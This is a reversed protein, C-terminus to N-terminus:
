NKILPIRIRDQEVHLTIYYVGASWLNIPIQTQSGAYTDAWILKGETSHITVFLEKFAPNDIFFEHQAPNPYVKIQHLHLLAVSSVDPLELQKQTLSSCGMGNDAELSVTVTQNMSNYTHTAVKQTDTTGDGLNWHYNLASLDDPTFTYTKYNREETFTSLPVPTILWEITDTTTKCPGVFIRAFAPNQLQSADLEFGNSQSKHTALGGMFLLASDYPNSLPFHFVSDSCLMVPSVRPHTDIYPETVTYSINRSIVPCELASSDIIQLTLMGSTQPIFSLTTTNSFPLGDFSVGAQANELGLVSINLTDGLCLDSNSQITFPLNSCPATIIEFGTDVANCPSNHLTRLTIFYPTNPQLDSILTRTQMFPASFSNGTDTSVQYGLAEPVASWFLDISNQTVRTTDANSIGQKVVSTLFLTQSPESPCLGSNQATATVTLSRDEDVVLFPTSTGQTVGNVNWIYTSASTNSIILTDQIRGCFSDQNSANSLIPTSPVPTVILNFTASTTECGTITDKTFVRYQNQTNAWFERGEISGPEWRYTAHSVQTAQLLISDGECITRGSGNVISSTPASQVEILLTDPKSVGKANTVTLIARQQGPSNFRVSPNQQTSSSPQAGTFTWSYSTPNQTGGGTFRVTEGSCVSSDSTQALATPLLSSPSITFTKVYIVDGSSANNNNTSMFSLYLVVNGVNSSPATWEFTWAVSDGTVASTGSSTHGMYQRTQGSVNSTYRQVRTDLTRLDGAPNDGTETLVTAQFGYKVIGAQRSSITIRYVSDPIYGNGTFPADMRIRDWNTGSSIATGGHCSTCTGEGPANTLRAGPGATRLTGSTIIFGLAALFLFYIAKKM